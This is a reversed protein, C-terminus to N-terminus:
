LRANRDTSPTDSAKSRLPRWGKGRTMAMCVTRASRITPTTSIGCCRFPRSEPTALTPIAEATIISTLHIRTDAGFGTTNRSFMSGNPTIKSTWPSPESTRRRAPSAALVVGCKQGHTYWYFVAYQQPLVRVAHVLRPKGGKENIAAILAEAAEKQLYPLTSSGAIVVNPTIDIVKDPPLNALLTAAIQKALGALGSTDCNSPLYESLLM